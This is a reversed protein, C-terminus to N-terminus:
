LAEHEIPHEVNVEALVTVNVIALQLRAKPEAVDYSVRDCELSLAAVQAQGGQLSVCGHM